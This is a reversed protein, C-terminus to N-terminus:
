PETQQGQEPAAEASNEQSAASQEEGGRRREVRGERAGRLQDRLGQRAEQVQGRLEDRRELVQERHDLLRDVGEGTKDRLDDRLEQRHGQLEDQLQTRRLDVQDQLAGRRQEVRYRVVDMAGPKDLEVQPDDLAGYVRLEMPPLGELGVLCSLDLAEGPLDILGAGELQLRDADVRLDDSRAVGGEFAFCAGMRTYVLREPRKADLKETALAVLRERVKAFREHAQRARWGQDGQRVGAAGAREALPMEGDRLALCLRGGLGALLADRAPGATILDVELDLRGTLEREAGSAAILGALDLDSAQGQLRYRPPSAGLDASVSAQLGGGLLRATAGQVGLAGRQVTLPLSLDEIRLGDVELRGMRLRGELWAEDLGARPGGTGPQTAPQYRDLDLRDVSLDFWATPPQLGAVTVAGTATSGDVVLSLDELRLAQGDWRYATALSASALASPDALELELGLLGMTARLDPGEVGLRGSLELGTEQPEALLSGQVALGLAALDLAEAHLRGSALDLSFPAALILRQEGAPVLEGRSTLDLDLASVVLQGDQTRGSASLLLAAQVAPERSSLQAQVRLQPAARASLPGLDLQLGQVLIERGAARDEYVVVTDRLIVRGIPPLDTSENPAREARLREVLIEWSGRGAESRELRLELGELVLAGLELEGQLLPLLRVRARAREVTLMPEPGFGPAASVMLGQIQLGPLPLLRLDLGEIRLDHGTRERAALALQAEFAVLDVTAVLYWAGGLAIALVGALVLALRALWRRM